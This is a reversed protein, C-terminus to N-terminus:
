LFIFQLCSQAHYKLFLIIICTNLTELYLTCQSDDKLPVILKSYDYFYEESTNLFKLFWLKLKHIILSPSLVVTFNCLLCHRITHGLNTCFSGGPITNNNNVIKKPNRKNLVGQYYYSYVLM